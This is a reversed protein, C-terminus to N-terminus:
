KRFAHSSVQDNKGDYKEIQKNLDSIEEDKYELIHKLAQNASQSETLKEKMELYDNQNVLRSSPMVQFAGARIEGTTTEINFSDLLEKKTAIVNNLDNEKNDAFRLLRDLEEIRQDKMEIKSKLNTITDKDEHVQRELYTNRTKMEELEKVLNMNIENDGVNDKKKESSLFEKFEKLTAKIDDGLVSEKSKNENLSIISQLSELKKQLLSIRNKSSEQEADMHIVKQNAFSLQQNLKVNSIKEEFMDKRVNDLEEVLSEVKVWCNKNQSIEEELISIQKKLEKVLTNKERNSETETSDQTRSLQKELDQIKALNEERINNAEALELNIRQFTMKHDNELKKTASAHEEEKNRLNEINQNKLDLIDKAFRKSEDQKNKELEEITNNKNSLQQKVENLKVKEAELDATLGRTKLQEAKLEECRMKLQETVDVLQAEKELKMKSSEGLEKNLNEQLSQVKFEVNELKRELRNNKELLRHITDDKFSLKSVHEAIDKELKSVTEKLNEHDDESLEIDLGYTCVNKHILVKKLTKVKNGLIKIQNEKESLEKVFDGHKPVLIFKDRDKCAECSAWIDNKHCRGELWNIKELLNIITENKASVESRFNAIKFQLSEVAGAPNKGGAAEVKATPNTGGSAEVTGGPNTGGKAKETGVPNTGGKAEVTGAPYRGGSAEVTGGPNRGGAAEVKAVVSEVDKESDNENNEDQM